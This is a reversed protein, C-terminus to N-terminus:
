GPRVQAHYPGFAADIILVSASGPKCPAQLENTLPMPPYGATPASRTSRLAAQRRAAELDQTLDRCQIRLVRVQERAQVMHAMHFNTSGFLMGIDAKLPRDHKSCLSKHQRVSLLCMIVHSNGDGADHQVSM